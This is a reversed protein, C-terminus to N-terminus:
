TFCFNTAMSSHRGPLFFSMPATQRITVLPAAHLNIYARVTHWRVYQFDDASLDAISHHHVDRRSGILRHNRMWQASHIVICRRSLATTVKYHIAETDFNYLEGTLSFPSGCVVCFCSSEMAFEAESKWEPETQSTSLHNGM